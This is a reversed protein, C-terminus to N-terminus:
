TPNSLLFESPPPIGLKGFFILLVGSIEARRRKLANSIKSWVPKSAAGFLLEKKYFLGSENLRWFDLMDNGGFDQTAVFSELGDETM